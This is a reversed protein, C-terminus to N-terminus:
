SAPAARGRARLGDIVGRTIEADVTAAAWARDRRAARLLARLRYKFRRYRLKRLSWRKAPSAMRVRMLGVGHYYRRVYDWTLRDADVVHLVRADAIWMGTSGRELLRRLFASEEGSIMNQGTRGLAPDFRDDKVARLRLAFNAGYPLTNESEIPVHEDAIARVAYADVFVELNRALWAPPTSVFRAVIPGGFFDADPYDRLARAYAALLGGDVQVDDDTWVILEGRAHALAHNRAHSLGQKSEFLARLPLRDKWADLVGATDDTSNNNVVLLEWEVGDPVELDALSALTERLSAARNWTCIALTILM